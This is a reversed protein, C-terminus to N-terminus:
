GKDKIEKYFYHLTIYRMSLKYGKHMYIYIYTYTDKLNTFGIRSIKINGSSCALGYNNTAGLESAFASERHQGIIM